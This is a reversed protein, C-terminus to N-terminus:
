SSAGPAHTTYPFAWPKRFADNLLDAVRFLQCRSM